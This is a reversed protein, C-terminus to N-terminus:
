VQITTRSTCQPVAHSYALGMLLWYYLGAGGFSFFVMEGANALICAFLIAVFPPSGRRMVQAVLIGLLLVFLIAGVLGTEELVASPLFGKEVPFGTPIGMIGTKLSTWDDVDSPVGFGIGTLPARQFNDIQRDMMTARVQFSRSENDEAKKLIFQEAAFQLAPGKVVLVMCCLVVGMLKLGPSFVKRQVQPRARRSKFLWLVAMILLGGAYMLLATRSRSAYIAFMGLLLGGWVWPSRTHRFLLLVTLGATLPAMVPGFTQPHILLGQFGIGNIYFGAPSFYFPISGALVVLFCTFFWSLWYSLSDRTRYFCTLVTTAGLFFAIIKYVSVAPLRSELVSLCAVVVAYLLLVALMNVPWRAKGFLSDWALRSFVSILVLWRISAGQGSSPFIGPNLNLVIFLITLAQIGERPGRWGYGALLLMILPMLPPVGKLVVLIAVLLLAPTMLLAPALADQEGVQRIHLSRKM